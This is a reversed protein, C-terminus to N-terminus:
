ENVWNPNISSFILPDFIEHRRGILYGNVVLSFTAIFPGTEEKIEDVTDEVSLRPSYLDPSSAPSSLQLMKM